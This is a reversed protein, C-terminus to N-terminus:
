RLGGFEAALAARQRHREQEFDRLHGADPDAKPATTPGQDGRLRKLIQVAQKRDHTDDVQDLLWERGRALGYLFFGVPNDLDRRRRHCRCGFGFALLRSADCDTLHGSHVAQRFLRDLTAGEILQDADITNGEASDIELFGGAAGEKSEKMQGEKGKTRVGNPTFAFATRHSRAGPETHVAGPETHVTNKVGYGTRHSDHDDADAPPAPEHDALNAFCIRRDICTSRGRRVPTELILSLLRLGALAREVSRTSLGADAALTAAAAYCVGSKGARSDIALFVAKLTRCGVNRSDVKVAPLNAGRLIALQRGRSWDFENQAHTPM